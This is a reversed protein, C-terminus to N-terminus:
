RVGEPKTLWILGDADQEAKWSRGRVGWKKMFAQVAVLTKKETRKLKYAKDANSTPQIVVRGTSEEYGIRIYGHGGLLKAAASKFALQGNAYFSAEQEVGTDWHAGHDYWQIGSM